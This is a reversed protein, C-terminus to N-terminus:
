SHHISRSKDHRYISTEQKSPTLTATPSLIQVSDMRDLGEVSVRPIKVYVSAKVNLEEIVLTHEINDFFHPLKM